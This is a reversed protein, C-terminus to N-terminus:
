QCGSDKAIWASWWSTRNVAAPRLLASRTLPVSIAAPERSLAKASHRAGARASRPLGRELKGDSYARSNQTRAHLARHVSLVYSGAGDKRGPWRPTVHRKLSLSIRRRKALKPPPRAFGARSQACHAEEWTLAAKRAREEGSVATPSAPVGPTIGRHRRRRTTANVIFSHRVGPLLAGRRTARQM